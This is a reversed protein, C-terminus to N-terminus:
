DGIQSSILQRDVSFLELAEGKCLPRLPFTYTHLWWWLWPFSVMCSLPIGTQDLLSSLHQETVEVFLVLIIELSPGRFIVCWHLEVISWSWFGQYWCRPTACDQTRMWLLSETESRCWLDNVMVGSGFQCWYRIEHLLFLNHWSLANVYDWLPNRSSVTIGACTSCCSWTHAGVSPGRNRQPVVPKLWLVM